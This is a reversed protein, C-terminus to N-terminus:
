KYRQAPGRSPLVLRGAAATGPAGRQGREGAGGGNGGRPEPHGSSCGWPLHTGAPGPPGLTSPAPASALSQPARRASSASPGPPAHRALGPPGPSPWGCTSPTPGPPGPPQPLLCGPARSDTPRRPRKSLQANAKPLWIRSRRGPASLPRNPHPLTRTRTGSQRRWFGPAPSIPEAELGHSRVRSGRGGAALKRLGTRESERRPFKDAREGPLGSGPLSPLAASPARGRQAIPVVRFSHGPASGFLFSSHGLWVELVGM